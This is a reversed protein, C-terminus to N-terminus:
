GPCPNTNCKREESSEGGCDKGGHAPAPSDCLRLRTETGGGCSKSCESWKLWSGWSGDVPGKGWSEGM